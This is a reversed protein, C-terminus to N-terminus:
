SSVKTSIRHQCSRPSAFLVIRIECIHLRYRSDHPDRAIVETQQVAEQNLYLVDEPCISQATDSVVHHFRRAASEHANDSLVSLFGEIPM